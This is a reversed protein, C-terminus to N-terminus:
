PTVNAVSASPKVPISGVVYTDSSTSVSTVTDQEIEISLNTRFSASAAVKICQTPDPAGTNTTNCVLVFAACGASKSCAPLGAFNKSLVIPGFSDFAAAWSPPATTQAHVRQAYLDLRAAAAVGILLVSFLIVLAIRRM